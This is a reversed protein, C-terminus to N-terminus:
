RSEMKRAETSRKILRQIGPPMKRGEARQVWEKLAGELMKAVGGAWYALRDGEVVRNRELITGEPTVRFEDNPYWDIAHRM